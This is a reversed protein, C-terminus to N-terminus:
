ATTSASVSLRGLSACVTRAARRRCRAGLHGQLGVNQGHLRQGLLIRPPQQRRGADDGSSCAALRQPQPRVHRVLASSGRDAATARSTCSLSRALMSTATSRRETANKLQAMLATHWRYTPRRRRAAVTSSWACRWTRRGSDCCSGATRLSCRRSDPSTRM